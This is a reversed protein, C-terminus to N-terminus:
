TSLALSALPLAGTTSTESIVRIPFQAATVHPSWNLAYSGPSPFAQKTSFSTPSGGQSMMNAMLNM